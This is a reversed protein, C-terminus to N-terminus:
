PSPQSGDARTTDRDASMLYEQARIRIRYLQTSFPNLPCLPPIYLVLRGRWYAAQEFPCKAPIRDVWAQALEPTWVDPELFPLSFKPLAEAFHGWWQPARARQKARAQNNPM